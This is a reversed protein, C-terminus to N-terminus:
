TEVNEEAKREQERKAERAIEAEIELERRDEESDTLGLGFREDLYPGCDPWRRILEKRRKLVKDRKIRGLIYNDDQSDLPGSQQFVKILGKEKEEDQWIPPSSPWFVNVSPYVLWGWANESM